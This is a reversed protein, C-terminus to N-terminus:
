GDSLHQGGWALAAEIAKGHRAAVLDDDARRRDASYGISPVKSHRGAHLDVTRELDRPKLELRLMRAAKMATEYPSAAIENFDISHDRGWGGRTLAKDFLLRQMHHVAVALNAARGLPEDTGEVARQLLRDADPLVAALHWALQAVFALRDTGGRFTARVFSARDMTVFLPLMRERDAVLDDLLTNVWSSPKVVIAEGDTWQPRLAARAVQLAPELQWGPHGARRSLAKWTALDVLCNPEKLALSRRPVDLLRSLLTSGCFSPHFIFRDPGPPETRLMRILDSLRASQSVGTAIASRGDVFAAESLLARSTPFFIARDGEIDISHLFNGPDALLERSPTTLIRGEVVRWIEESAPLRDVPRNAKRAPEVL